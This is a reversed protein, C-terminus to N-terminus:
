EAILGVFGKIVSMDRVCYLLTSFAKVADKLTVPLIFYNCPQTSELSMNVKVAVKYKASLHLKIFAVACQIGM